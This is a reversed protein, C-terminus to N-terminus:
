AAPVILTQPRPVEAADADNQRESHYHIHQRSFFDQLASNAGQDLCVAQTSKLEWASGAQGSRKSGTDHSNLAGAIMLLASPISTSSAGAVAAAAGWELMMSGTLSRLKQEHRALAPSSCAGTGNSRSAVLMAYSHALPETLQDHDSDVTLVLQAVCGAASPLHRGVIDLIRQRREVQNLPIHLVSAGTGQGFARAWRGASDSDSGAVGDLLIIPAKATERAAFYHIHPVLDRLDVCLGTLWTKLYRDLESPLEEPPPPTLRMTFAHELRGLATELAKDVTGYLDTEQLRSAAALTAKARRKLRASRDLWEDDEIEAADAELREVETSLATVSHHIAAM